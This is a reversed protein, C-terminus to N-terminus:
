APIGNGASINLKLSNLCTPFRTPTPPSTGINHSPTRLGALRFPMWNSEDSEAPLHSATCFESAALHWVTWINFWITLCQVTVSNAM